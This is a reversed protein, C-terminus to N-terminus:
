THPLLVRELRAREKLLRKIAQALATVQQHANRADYLRFTYVPQKLDERRWLTAIGNECNLQLHFHQACLHQEETFASATQECTNDYRTIYWSLIWAWPHKHLKGEVNLCGLHERNRIPTIMWQRLMDEDKDLDEMIKPNPNGLDAAKLENAIWPFKPDKLAMERAYSARPDDGLKKSSLLLRVRMAVDAKPAWIELSGRKAPADWSRLGLLREGLDTLQFPIYDPDIVPEFHLVPTGKNEGSQLIRTTLGPYDPPTKDAFKQLQNIFNQYRHPYHHVSDLSPYLLPARGEWYSALRDELEGVGCKKKYARRDVAPLMGLYIGFQIPSTKPLSTVGHLLWESWYIACGQPVVVGVCKKFLELPDKKEPALGFKASSENAAPYHPRYERCIREHMEATHTKPVCIFLGEQICVKGSIACPPTWEKYLFPLDWHLFESDDNGPLKYICRNIDVWLRTNNELLRVAAQYMFPNQRVKWVSPMHWVYPDCPAGFSSTHFPAAEKYEKVVSEDIHSMTLVELYRKRDADIDLESGTTPDRVIFPAQSAWPQKQLVGKVYEVLFEERAAEDMIGSLVVYGHENFHESAEDLQTHDYTSPHVRQAGKLWDKPM